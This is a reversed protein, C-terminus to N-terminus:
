KSVCVLPSTFPTPLPDDEPAYSLGLSLVSVAEPWLSQPHARQDARAEMWAMAGHHGAALFANLRARTADPLTARTIGIADFGLARAQARIAEAAAM